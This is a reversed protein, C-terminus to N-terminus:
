DDDIRAIGVQQQYCDNPMGVAGICFAADEAGAIASLGELLDQVFVLVGAAGIELDIRRVRLEHVGCQPLGAFPRPLVSGPIPIAPADVARVIEALGPLLKRDIHGSSDRLRVQGDSGGVWIADVSRNSRCFVARYLDIARVIGALSPVDRGVIGPRCYSNAAAVQGHDLDIRLVGIDNIGGASYNPFGCVAALAPCAETAGGAPVVVLVDPDVGVIGLDHEQGAILAGDNGDVAALRPARPVVLRGRLEVVDGGVICEWIPDAAPLLLAA